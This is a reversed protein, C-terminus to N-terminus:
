DGPQRLRVEKRPDLQRPAPQAPPAGLRGTIARYGLVGVGTVAAIAALSLAIAVGVSFLFVGAAVLAAALLAKGLASKPSLVFVRARMMRPPDGGAGAGGDAPRAAAIDRGGSARVPRIEDPV